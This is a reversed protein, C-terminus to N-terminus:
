AITGMKYAKQSLIEGDSCENQPQGAGCVILLMMSWGNLCPALTEGVTRLPVFNTLMWSLLRSLQDEGISGQSLIDQV